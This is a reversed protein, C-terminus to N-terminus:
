QLFPPVVPVIPIPMRWQWRLCCASVPTSNSHHLSPALLSEVRYGTNHSFDLTLFLLIPVQAGSWYTPTAQCLQYKGTHMWYVHSSLATAIAITGIVTANKAEASNWQLFSSKCYHFPASFNWWCDTLHKNKLIDVVEVFQRLFNGWPFGFFSDYTSLDCVLLWMYVSTPLTGFTWPNPKVRYPWIKLQTAICSPNWATFSSSVHSSVVCIIIRYTHKWVSLIKPTLIWLMKSHFNTCHYKFVKPRTCENLFKPHFIPM